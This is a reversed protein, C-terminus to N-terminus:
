TLATPRLTQRWKRRRARARVSFIFLRRVVVVVALAVTHVSVGHLCVGVLHGRPPARVYLACSVSVLSYCLVSYRIIDPLVVTVTGRYAVGHVRVRLPTGERSVHISLGKHNLGRAAHEAAEGRGERLDGHRGQRARGGGTNHTTVLSCM